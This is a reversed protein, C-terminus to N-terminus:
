RFKRVDPSTDVETWDRATTTPTVEDSALIATDAQRPMEAIPSLVSGNGLAVVGLVLAVAALGVAPLVALKNCLCTM